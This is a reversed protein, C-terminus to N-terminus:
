VFSGIAEESCAFAFVSIKGSPEFIRAVQLVLFDAKDLAIALSEPSYLHYHLAGLANDTSKRYSINLIDPVEVYIFGTSRVAVHLKKLMEIPEHVHELVKNLTVISFPHEDLNGEYLSEHVDIGGISRLHRAAIPDPEYAVYEWTERNLGLYQRIKSIFVGTGAGIDLLRFTESSESKVKKQGFFENSFQSIRLSRAANDSMKDPLNMVRNYKEVISDSQFDVEYYSESYSKLKSLNEVEYCNIALGCIPCGIWKREYGDSLIGAYLEFRDPQNIKLLVEDLQKCGCVACKDPYWSKMSILRRKLSDNSKDSFGMSCSLRIVLFRFKSFGQYEKYVISKFVPV